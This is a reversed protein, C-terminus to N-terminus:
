FFLDAANMKLYQVHNVNVGLYNLELKVVIVYVRSTDNGSWFYSSLKPVSLWREREREKGM